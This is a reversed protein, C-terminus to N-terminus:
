RLVLGRLRPSRLRRCRLAGFGAFDGGFREIIRMPGGLRRLETFRLRQSAQLPKIAQQGGLLGMAQVLQALPRLDLAFIWAM